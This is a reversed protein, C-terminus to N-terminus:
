EKDMTEAIFNILVKSLGWSLIQEAEKCDFLKYFLCCMNHTSNDFTSHKCIMITKVLKETYRANRKYLKDRVVNCNNGCEECAVYDVSVESPCAVKKQQSPLVM